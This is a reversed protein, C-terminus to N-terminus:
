FIFCIFFIRFIAIDTVTAQDFSAGFAKASVALELTSVGIATPPFAIVGAATMFAPNLRAHIDTAAPAPNAKMRRVM